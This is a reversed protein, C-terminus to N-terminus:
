LAIGWKTGLYSEVQQRETSTLVRDYFLIEALDIASPNRGIRIASSQTDSTSGATGHSLNQAIQIGNRFIYASSSAFNVIDCIVEFSASFASGATTLASSTESSLRRTLIGRYGTNTEIRSVVRTSDIMFISQAGQPIARHKRVAFFSYGQKLRNINSPTTYYLQDDTGDFSITNKGNLGATTLTPQSNVVSQIFHRNNGSRDEWRAISSGNAAVAAGSTVSDFLGFDASLWFELGSLSTPLFAADGGGGGGGGGGDLTDGGGGGGGGSGSGTLLSVSGLTVASATTAGSPIVIYFTTPSPTAPLATVVEMSAVGSGTILSSNKLVFDSDATGSRFWYEAVQGSTEIGVTLGKYRLAAPIDALAAATTAYPGFKADIPKAAGVVIGASLEIGTPM